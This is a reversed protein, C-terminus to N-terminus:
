SDEAPGNEDYEGEDIETDLAPEGEVQGMEDKEDEESVFGRERLQENVEDLTRQGFNKINLLERDTKEFLEGVKTVGSRKLCNATRVSLGLEEIPMNYQELPIPLRPQKEGVRLPVRALEYFLQFQEMLLHASRSVAEVPSITGDTWVDLILREYSLQGVNIKEIRYNVKRVPTFVADLPIVGIPQGETQEGSRYGQSAPRYGKDQEVNFEVFLKAEPSDLLALHHEPNVVEFEASLDLDSAFVSREGEARLTLKGEDSTLPRLRIAKVNLLFDIVDERMYPVTSFEHQVGEIKVWTVAAGKLSSLLTRRLANGMTIGSGRELPETVFQGYKESIAACEIQPILVDSL